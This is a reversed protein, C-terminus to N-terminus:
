GGAIEYCVLREGDRVLIRGAAVAPHGWMGPGGLSYSRLLEFRERTVEGVVLSGDEGFVLVQSGWAILSAHEGGDPEGRWVVSGDEPDLGFLQGRRRQSFAVVLNGAVVPSSMFMSERCRWLHDVAWADEESRISWAHFDKQYDSTLLRNGLLLPTVITNDMKVEYPIRWLEVGGQPDLGVVSEESKFILQPRGEIEHIIPSAGIAPADGDWRWHERGDGAALAVMAGRGVRGPTQDDNFGFHVFCRENWVLPSAAAGFWAHSPEFESSFTRTWVLEGTAAERVSLIATIGLTFLRGGIVTPTSYPGIGHDRASPDQEFEAEYGTSWVEVGDDLRLCRVVERQGQRSFVWVRDGAVVPGSYGGGVESAWQRTLQEPWTAPRSEVSLAGTRDPGRWQPWDEGAGAPSGVLLGISVLIVADNM